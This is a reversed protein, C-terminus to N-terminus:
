GGSLFRISVGMIRYFAAMNSYRFNKTPSCLHSCGGEVLTAQTRNGTRTDYTPQTQQQNEEQESLNKELHKPKGREEFVLVALNWNSGSLLSVHQILEQASKFHEKPLCIVNVNKERRLGVQPALWQKKQEYHNYLPKGAHVM